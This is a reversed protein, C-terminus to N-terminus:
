HTAEPKLSPSVLKNTIESSPIINTVRLYVVRNSGNADAFTLHQSSWDVVKYVGLSRPVVSNNTNNFVKTMTDTIWGNSLSLTGAITSTRKQGAIYNTVYEIYGGGQDVVKCSQVRTGSPLTVDARWIGKLDNLSIDHVNAALGTLRLLCYISLTGFFSDSRRQRLPIIM